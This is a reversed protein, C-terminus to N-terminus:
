KGDRTDSSITREESVLGTTWIRTVGVAKHCRTKASRKAQLYRYRYLLKSNAREKSSSDNFSETAVQRSLSTDSPVRSIRQIAYTIEFKM